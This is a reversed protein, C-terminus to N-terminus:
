EGHKCINNEKNTKNRKNQPENLYSKNRIWTYWQKVFFNEFKKLQWVFLWNWIQHHNFLVILDEYELIISTYLFDRINWTGPVTYLVPAIIINWHMIHSTLTCLTVNKWKNNQFNMKQAFSSFASVLYNSKNTSIEILKANFYWQQRDSAWSARWENTLNIVFFIHLLYSFTWFLYVM